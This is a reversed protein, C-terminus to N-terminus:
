LCSSFEPELIPRSFLSFPLIALTEIEATTWDKLRATSQIPMLLAGRAKRVDESKLLGASLLTINHM